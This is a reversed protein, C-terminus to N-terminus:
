ISRVNFQLSVTKLFAKFFVFGFCMSLFAVAIIECNTKKLQGKKNLKDFYSLLGKKLTLSIQMIGDGIDAFLEPSRLVISIKVFRPTVREMYILTFHGLDEM